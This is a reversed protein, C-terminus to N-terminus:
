CISLLLEERCSGQANAAKAPKRLASGRRCGPQEWRPSPWIRCPDPAAGHQLGWAAGGSGKQVQSLLFADGRLLSHPQSWSPGGWGLVGPEPKAAPSTHCGLIGSVGWPNTSPAPLEGPPNSGSCYGCPAPSSTAPQAWPIQSCSASHQLLFGEWCWASFGLAGPSSSARAAWPSCCLGLPPKGEWRSGSLNKFCVFRPYASSGHTISSSCLFGSSCGRDGAARSAPSGHQGGQRPKLAWLVFLEGPCTLLDWLSQGAWLWDLWHLLVERLLWILEGRKAFGPGLLAPLMLHWRAGLLDARRCGVGCCFPKSNVQVSRRVLYVRVSGRCCSQLQM